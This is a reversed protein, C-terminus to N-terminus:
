KDFVSHRGSPIAVDDPCICKFTPNKEFESSSGSSKGNRGSPHLRSYNLTELCQHSDPRYQWRTRVYTASQHAYPRKSQTKRISVHSKIEILQFRCLIKRPYEFYGQVSFYGEQLKHCEFKTMFPEKWILSIFESYRFVRFYVDEGHFCSCYM